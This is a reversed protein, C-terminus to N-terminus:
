NLMKRVALTGADLVKMIIALAVVYCFSFAMMLLLVPGFETILGEMSFLWLTFFDILSLIVLFLISVVKAWKQKIYPNWFTEKQANPIATM